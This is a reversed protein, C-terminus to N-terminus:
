TMIDAAVTGRRATGGAGLVWASELEVNLRGGNSPENVNGSSYSQCPTCLGFCRKNTKARLSPETRSIRNGSAAWAMWTPACIMALLIPVLTSVSPLVTMPM